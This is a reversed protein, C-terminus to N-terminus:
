FRMTLSFMGSGKGDPFYSLSYKSQLNYMFQQESRLNYKYAGSVANYINGVYGGQMSFSCFAGTVDNLFFLLIHYLLCLSIM